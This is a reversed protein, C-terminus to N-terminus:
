KGKIRDKLELLESHKDMYSSLKNSYYTMHEKLNNLTINRKINPDVQVKTMEIRGDVQKILENVLELTKDKNREAGENWGLVWSPNYLNDQVQKAVSDNPLNLAYSQLTIAAM